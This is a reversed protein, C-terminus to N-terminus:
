RRGSDVNLKAPVRVPEPDAPDFAPTQDLDDLPPDRPLAVRPPESPWGLHVLIAKVVTPETLFAIM